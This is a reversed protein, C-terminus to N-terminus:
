ASTGIVIVDYTISTGAGSNAVHLLDGTAPTVPYGTDAQGALLAFVAGPRLTIIGTAAPSLFSAVGNAVGGVLVSNVNGAAAAVIVAKLKVFTLTAGFADLLVGALDLDESASPALTRTDHFIKDAQGANVGTQMVVAYDKLLPVSALALDLQQELKSSLTVALRSTLPM